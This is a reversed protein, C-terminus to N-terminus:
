EEDPLGEFDIEYDGAEFVDLSDPPDFYAFYEIRIWDDEYELLVGSNSPPEFHATTKYSGFKCEYYVFAFYRYGNEQAHQSAQSFAYTPPLVLLVLPNAARLVRLDEEDLKIIDASLSCILFLSTLLKNM